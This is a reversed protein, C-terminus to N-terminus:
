ESAGIPALVKGLNVLAVLNGGVYLQGSVFEAQSKDSLSLPPEVSDAAVEIIDGISDVLLATCSREDAVVIVPSQEGSELSSTSSLGLMAALDTVSVIEGRINIVGRIFDPVCPIPAVRYENYIERVDDIGVCYWEEGLSFLLVSIRDDRQEEMEEQALSSARDRLIELQADTLGSDARARDPPTM